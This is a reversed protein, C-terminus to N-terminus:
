DGSLERTLDAAPRVTGEFVVPPDRDTLFSRLEARSLTSVTPTGYPRRGGAFPAEYTRGARSADVVEWRVDFRDPGGSVHCVAPDGDPATLAYTGDGVVAYDTGMMIQRRALSLAREFGVGHVLLRAFGTGVTAAQDDLVRTLTVGGAVAGGDVLDLGEAYSGCANLFFTRVGVDVSSAPLHGDSCRLGEVECHGVYHVFDARSELVSRLEGRSLSEHVTVEVPLETAFRRYIDAVGAESHMERDNIVVDIRLGDGSRSRHRLRNEYARVSTKSATIPIGDALWAHAHGPELDPDLRNATAVDGRFFDDLSRKLLESGDLESASPPYVLSMADLLYPLARAHYPDPDVYTSLHWDPLRDELGDLVGDLVAALRGAMPREGYAELDVEDSVPPHLDAAGRALCDLVFVSRLLEAAEGALAGGTSLSRGVDPPASIRAARVDDDAVVTAGLYYALPAVAYLDGYDAPVRVTIGTEPTREAVTRPVDLEGFSLLPPHGRNAPDSRAPTTVECAAAAHTVATAVGTPSFPVRVTPLVGTPEGCRSDVEPRREARGRADAGDEVSRFM